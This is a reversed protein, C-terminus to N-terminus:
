NKISCGITCTTSGLMWGSDMAKKGQWKISMSKATPQFSITSTNKQSCCCAVQLVTQTHFSAGGPPLNKPGRNERESAIGSNPEGGSIKCSSLYVDISAETSCYFYISPLHSALYNVPIHWSTALVKISKKLTTNQLLMFSPENNM